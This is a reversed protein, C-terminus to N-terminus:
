ICLISAYIRADGFCFLTFGEDFDLNRGFQTTQSYYSLTTKIFNPGPILDDEILIVREYGHIDFLDRRAGILNRGVGYNEERLVISTYPVGSKKIVAKIESQKAKPGGDIYHHIDIGELDDLNETLGNLVEEMLDPRNFSATFIATKM